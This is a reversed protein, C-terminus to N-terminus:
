ADSQEERRYTGSRGGSKEDLTIDGIVMARDLSKAMDYITLAAVSVAVLAEMEVGTREVAEVQSEIRVRRGAEDVTIAVEVHTLRLPHCLPILEATRKAAQIGALRASAMVDGKPVQGDRIAALAESSMTVTGSAVARRRTAEKGGVDVMRAQGGADLHTLGAEDAATSEEPRGAAQTEAEENM